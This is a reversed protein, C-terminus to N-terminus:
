TNKMAPHKYAILCLLLSNDDWYRINKIERTQFSLAIWSGGSALIKHLYTKRKKFKQPSWIKLDLEREILTM